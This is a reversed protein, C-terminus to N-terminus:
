AWAVAHVAAHMSSPSVVADATRYAHRELMGTVRVLPHRPSVGALQVLSLPWLDRVEFVCRRMSNELSAGRPLMLM